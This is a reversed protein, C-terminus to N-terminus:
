LQFDQPFFAVFWSGSYEQFYVIASPHPFSGDTDILNKNIKKRKYRRVLCSPPKSAQTVSSQFPHLCGFNWYFDWQKKGPSQLFPARLALSYLIIKKNKKKREQSQRSTLPLQLDASIHHCHQHHCYGHCHLCMFRTETVTPVLFLSGVTYLTYSSDGNMKKKSSLVLPPELSPSSYPLTTTTHTHTPLTQSFGM